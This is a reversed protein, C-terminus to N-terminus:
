DDKKWRAANQLYKTQVENIRLEAEESTQEVRKFGQALESKTKLLITIDNAYDLLQHKQNNLTSKINANAKKLLWELLINFLISSM